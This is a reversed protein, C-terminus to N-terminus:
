RSACWNCVKVTSLRHALVTATTTGDGAIGSTKSAVECVMQAGMNEFKDTLEIEKAVTVGDKTITPIGFSKEILVNRGKPCPHSKSCLCSYQCRRSHVRPNKSWIETRKWGHHLEGILIFEKVSHIQCYNNEIGLIDYERM